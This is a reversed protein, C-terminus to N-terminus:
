IFFKCSLQEIKKEKKNLLRSSKKKRKMKGYTLDPPMGRCYFYLLPTPSLPFLSISLLVEFSYYFKYLYLLIDRVPHHWPYYLQGMGKEAIIKKCGSGAKFPVLNLSQPSYWFCCPPFYAFISLGKKAQWHRQM